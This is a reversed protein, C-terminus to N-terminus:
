EIEYKWNDIITQYRQKEEEPLLSAILRLLAKQEDTLAAYAKLLEAELAGQEDHM